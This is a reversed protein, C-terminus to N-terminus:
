RDRSLLRRLVELPDFGLSEEFPRGASVAERLDSTARLSEPLSFGPLYDCNEHTSNIADALDGRRSWLTTSTNEAALAAVTTGWSGAGIVAVNIRM